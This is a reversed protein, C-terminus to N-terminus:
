DDRGPGVREGNGVDHALGLAVSEEGERLGAELGVLDTDLALGRCLHQLTEHDLRVGFGILQQGDVAEYDDDDRFAGNGRHDGRNEVFVRGVGLLDELIETEGHGEVVRDFQM